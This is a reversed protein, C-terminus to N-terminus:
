QKKLIIMAYIGFVSAMLLQVLVPIAVLPTSIVALQVLSITVAYYGIKSIVISLFVSAFANKFQKSLEYFLFVNLALEASMILANIFHPHASFIFSFLPLAVALAYANKRNTHVLALVLMIRMPEVYFVPFSLLHAMAPAFLIVLVASIDVLLTTIKDRNLSLIASNKMIM